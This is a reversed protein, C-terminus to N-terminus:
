AVKTGPAHAVAAETVTATPAKATTSGSTPPTTATAVARTTAAGTSDARAKPDVPSRKASVTPAVAASYRSAMWPM